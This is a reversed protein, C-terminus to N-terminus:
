DRWTPDYGWVDDEKDDENFKTPKAGQNPVTVDGDIPVISKNGFAGELIEGSANLKVVHCRPMSYSKKMITM